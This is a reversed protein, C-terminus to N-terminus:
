LVVKGVSLINFMNQEKGDFCVFPLADTCTIDNWGWPGIAACEQHGDVNNPQGAIWLRMSGLPENGLSWRWSNIDNYLGVWASSSFQQRQAENQLRVMDENSKVIALDTHTARCYAQADSWTKGQQILYYIHPVSLVLPVLGTFFLFIFLRQEM